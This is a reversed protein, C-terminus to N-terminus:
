PIQDPRRGCNKLAEGAEGRTRLPLCRVLELDADGVLRPLAAIGLGAKLPSSSTPSGTAAPVSRRTRPVPALWLPGPLNAMAGEAGVLAHGDLVQVTAPM